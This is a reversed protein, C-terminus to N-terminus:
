RRSDSYETACNTQTQEDVNQRGDLQRFLRVQIISQNFIWVTHCWHCVYIVCYIGDRVYHFFVSSTM